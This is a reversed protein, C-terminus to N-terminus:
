ITRERLPLPEGPTRGAQKPQCRAFFAVVDGPNANTKLYTGTESVFFSIRASSGPEFWSLLRARQEVSLPATVIIDPYSYTVFSRTEFDNLFKGVATFSSYRLPRDSPPYGERDPLPLITKLRLHAGDRACILTLSSRKLPKWWTAIEITDRVHFPVAANSRWDVFIWAPNYGTAAFLAIM